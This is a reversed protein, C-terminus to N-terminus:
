LWLTQQTPNHIHLVIRAAEPEAVFPQKLSILLKLSSANAQAQAQACPLLLAVGALCAIVFRRSTEFGRIPM